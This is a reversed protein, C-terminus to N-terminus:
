VEVVVLKSMAFVGIAMMVGATGLMMWGIPTSFMPNLYDPQTLFLYVFFLPPLAGLVWASMRGEATLARVQRRLYERERLTGAVTLLLEALNGGVERQIRVAMVVWSFDDSHMRAAVGELAVEVEVGLRQEILARRFESAMPENGEKVVTDLSQALSLGASLSGSILQLTDALQANFAKIRKSAKRTLYVWPLVAGALLGIVAFAPSGSLALAVLGTGLAVGVHILLWEAANTGIAAAELKKALRVDLGGGRIVRDTAGVAKEVVGPGSGPSVADLGYPALRDAAKGRRSMSFAGTMLAILLAVAVAGAALAGIMVPESIVFRPGAVPQPGTPGTDREVAAPLQVFASDAYTEGAADVAITLTADGGESGAPVDFSVLLQSALVRAQETFIAQLGKPDDTNTTEGGGAEALAQLKDLADGDQGLAVVDVRAGRAEIATVTSETTEGSTDRGDSLVLVSGQVGDPLTDLALEVGDYLNTQRTLTLEAVADRLAPRDLTPPEVVDAEAAFSVLGVRVDDPAQDIFTLAAERAAAFREGAMSQSTDITLMTVRDVSAADGAPEASAKLATGDVTVEVTDLDAPAGARLGPLSYLVQVTGDDASVNSIAGDAARSAGPSGLVVTTSLMAAALLRHSQRM